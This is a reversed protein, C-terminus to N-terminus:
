HFTDKIGKDVKKGISKSTETNEFTNKAAEKATGKAFEKKVEQDFEGKKTKVEKSAQNYDGEARNIENKVDSLQNKAEKQANKAASAKEKNMRELENSKNLQDKLKNETNSHKQAQDAYKKKTAPDSAKSAKSNAEKIADGERQLEKKVKNQAEQLENIKKNSQRELTRNKKIKDDLMAKKQKHESLVKGKSKQNRVSDQLDGHAKKIDSPLGSGKNLFKSVQKSGMSELLDDKIGKGFGKAADGISNGVSKGANLAKNGAKMGAKGGKLAAGFGWSWAEDKVATTGVKVMAGSWSDGGADVYDKVGYMGKSIIFYGEAGIALISAPGAVVVAGAIVAAQLMGVCFGDGRNIQETTMTTMDILNQGLTYEKPLKDSTKGTIANNFMKEAQSLKLEGEGQNFKRKMDAISRARKYIMEKEDRDSTRESAKYLRDRIRDLKNLQDRLERRASEEQRRKEQYDRELEANRARWDDLGDASRQAEKFADMSFPRKSILDFSEETVPDYKVLYEKGTLPDVMRKAGRADLSNIYKRLRTEYDDDETATDWGQEESPLPPPLTMGSMSSVIMGILSGIMIAIAPPLSRIFVELAGEGQIYDSFTGGIERRGGDDALVSNLGLQDLVIYTGMLVFIFIMQKPIPKNSFYLVLGLIFFILWVANLLIQIIVLLLISRMLGMIVMALGCAGVITGVEQDSMNLGPKKLIFVNVDNAAMRVLQILVSGRGTVLAVVATMIMSGALLGAIGSLLIEFLLTGAVALCLIGNFRNNGGQISRIILAPQSFIGSLTNGVKGGRRIFGIFMSIGAGMLGWLFTASFMRGTVGILNKSVWTDPNFGDNVYAMLWFNLLFGAIGMLLTLPLTKLLQKPMKKFILGILAMATQPQTQYDQSNM